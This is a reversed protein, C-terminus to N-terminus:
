PAQTLPFLSGDLKFVHLITVMKSKMNRLLVRSVLLFNINGSPARLDRNDDGNGVCAGFLPPNAVFTCKPNCDDEWGELETILQTADTNLVTLWNFPIAPGNHNPTGSWWTGYVNTTAICGTAQFTTLSTGTTGNDMLWIFWVPDQDSIGLGGDNNDGNARLESLVVEYNVNQAHNDIHFSFVILVCVIRLFPKM